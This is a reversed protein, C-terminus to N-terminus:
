LLFTLLMDTSCINSHSIIKFSHSLVSVTSVRFKFFVLVLVFGLLRPCIIRLAKKYYRGLGTAFVEWGSVGIKDSESNGLDMKLIINFDYVRSSFRGELFPSDLTHCLSDWSPVLIHSFKVNYGNLHSNSEVNIEFFM